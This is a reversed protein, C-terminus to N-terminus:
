AALESSLKNLKGRVSGDIVLDGARIIAGGLISKDVNVNLSVERQLRAKLSDMMSHMQKENLPMFSTVDVDITKEVESRYMEYLVFIDNIIALRKVQGLLRLFNAGQEDISDALVDIIIDAVKAQSIGPNNIVLQMTEESFLNALFALTKSWKGLQQGQMAFEFAAKAYPRAITITDIAM